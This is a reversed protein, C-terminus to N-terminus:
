ASVDVYVALESARSSLQVVDNVIARQQLTTTLRDSLLALVRRQRRLIDEARRRLPVPIPGYTVPVHWEEVPTFDGGREFAREARIVDLEIRDLVMVWSEHHHNRDKTM